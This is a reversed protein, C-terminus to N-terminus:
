IQCQSNPFFPMTYSVMLFKFKFQSLMTIINKFFHIIFEYHHYGIDFKYRVLRNVKKRRDRGYREWMYRYVLIAYLIYM